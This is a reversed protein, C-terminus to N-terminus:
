AAHPPEQRLAVLEALLRQLGTVTGRASEIAADRPLIATWASTAVALARTADAIEKVVVIETRPASPRATASYLERRLAAERAADMKVVPAKM